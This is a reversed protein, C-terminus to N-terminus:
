NSSFDGREIEEFKNGDWKIKINRIGKGQIYQEYEWEDKGCQRLEYDAQNSFAYIVNEETGLDM